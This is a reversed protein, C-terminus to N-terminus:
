CLLWIGAYCVKSMHYARTVGVGDIQCVIVVSRFGEHFASDMDSSIPRIDDIHPVVESPEIKVAPADNLEKRDFLWQSVSGKQAITPYTLHETDQFKLEGFYQASYPSSANPTTYTSFNSTMFLTVTCHQRPYSHTSLSSATTHPYSLVAIFRSIHHKSISLRSKRLRVSSNPSHSLPDGRLLLHEM